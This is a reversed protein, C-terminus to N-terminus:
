HHLSHPQSYALMPMIPAQQESADIIAAYAVANGCKPCHFKEPLVYQKLM